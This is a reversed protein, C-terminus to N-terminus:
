KRREFCKASEAMDNRQLCRQFRTHSLHCELTVNNAFAIFSVLHRSYYCFISPSKQQYFAGCGCLFLSDTTHPLSLKHLSTLLLQHPPFALPPSPTQKAKTSNALAKHASHAFRQEPKQEFIRPQHATLQVLNLLKAAPLNRNLFGNADMTYHERTSQLIM